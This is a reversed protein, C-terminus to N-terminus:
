TDSTIWVYSVDNSSDYNDRANCIYTILTAWNSVVACNLGMHEKLDNFLYSIMSVM